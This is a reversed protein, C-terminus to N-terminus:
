NTTQWFPELNGGEWISKIPQGIIAIGTAMAIAIVPDIRKSNKMREPKVPKILDGPAQTIQTCDVSWRVLPSGEHVAARDYVLKEFRRCAPSMSQYGQGFDIVDLGADQLERATDRAGYRDFAIAKIDYEDALEKIHATVYRWDTTTGPTLRIHGDAAWQAYPVGDRKSRDEIREGPLYAWVKYYVKEGVPWCLAFATLDHVAALDLGGYCPYRRLEAWDIPTPSACDDWEHIPIWQTEASTWQNLYLRRFQNQLDPRAMAEDFKREYEEIKQHGTELLPLALPWLKKDTWDAHKPVEYILPLYSPDTVDGSLVRKAYEYERYCITEQSSGATTIIIELPERRSMSGTTLAALLEQEAPGWAHLEDFVVLSPNYGHKGKGDASLARIISGTERHAIKKQSLTPEVLDMLAPNTRIMSWIAEFCISAQPADTAAMYLEQEPEPDLFFVILAIIAATQTKAQKRGFSAFVKRILRSADPRKWGFINAVLKKSHPLLVLPEPRRSKTSKTLTLTEAFACAADVAEADFWTGENNQV